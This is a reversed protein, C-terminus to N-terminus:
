RRLPPTIVANDGLSIDILRGARTEVVDVVRDHCRSQEEGAAFNELAVVTADEGIYAVDIPYAVPGNYICVRQAVFFALVLADGAGIPAIASLGDSRALATDAIFARFTALM